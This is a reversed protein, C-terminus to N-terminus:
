DFHRLSIASLQISLAEILRKREIPTINNGNEVIEGTFKINKFTANNGNIEVKGDITTWDYNKCNYRTEGILIFNNGNVTLNDEYFDSELCIIINNDTILHPL